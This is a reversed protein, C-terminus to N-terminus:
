ALTFSDIEVTRFRICGELQGGLEELATQDAKLAIKGDVEGKYTNFTETEVKTAVASANADAMGKVENIANVVTDKASTALGSVAGMEAKLAYEEHDHTADAKNALAGTVEEKYSDFASQEVKTAIASTNANVLGRVEEVENGLAYEEHTHGENSKGTLLGEVEIKYEALDSANKNAKADAGEATAKVGNIAETVETANAKDNLKGEVELKYAELVSNEVKADLKGQVETKYAEFVVNDVKTALKSEVEGKTIADTVSTLPRFRKEFTSELANVCIYTTDVIFVMDGNQVTLLMAAEQSEADFHENIAIAPIMSEDLKGNAGLVPINGEANGINKYAATGLDAVNAKKEIETTLEQKATAIDQAVQTKDAKDSELTTVRGEVAGIKGDLALDAEKYEKEVRAIEGANTSIQGELSTLQDNLKVSGDGVFVAKGDTVPLVEKGQKDVLLVYNRLDAM